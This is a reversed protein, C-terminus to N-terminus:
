KAFDAVKKLDDNNRIIMVMKEDIGLEKAFDAAVNDPNKYLYQERIDLIFKQRIDAKMERNRDIFQKKSAYIMGNWGSTSNIKYNKVELALNM